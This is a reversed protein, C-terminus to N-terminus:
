RDPSYITAGNATFLVVEDAGKGNLDGVVFGVSDNLGTSSPGSTIATLPAGLVQKALSVQFLKRRTLPVSIDWLLDTAADTDVRGGIVTGPPAAAALEAREVITFAGGSQALVAEFVVTGEAELRTGVFRHEGTEIQIFGTGANKKIAIAQSQQTGTLVFMAPDGAAASAVIAQHVGGDVDSVCGGSALNTLAVPVNGQGAPNFLRVSSVGAAAGSWVAVLANGSGCKPIYAM